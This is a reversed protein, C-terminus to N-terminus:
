IKLTTSPQERMRKVVSPIVQLDPNDSLSTKTFLEPNLYLAPNIMVHPRLVGSTNKLILSTALDEGSFGITKDVGVLVGRPQKYTHHFKIHSDATNFRNLFNKTTEEDVFTYTELTGNSFRITM